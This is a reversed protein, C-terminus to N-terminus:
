LRQRQFRETVVLVASARNVQIATDLNLRGVVSRRRSPDPALHQHLPVPQEHAQEIRPGSLQQALMQSLLAARVADAILVTWPTCWESDLLQQRPSVFSSGADAGEAIGNVVSFPSSPARRM